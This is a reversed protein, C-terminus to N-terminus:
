IGAKLFKQRTQCSQLLLIIVTLVLQTMELDSEKIGGLVLGDAYGGHIERMVSFSVKRLWVGGADLELEYGRTAGFM